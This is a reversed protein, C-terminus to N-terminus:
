GYRRVLNAGATPLYGPYHRLLLRPHAMQIRRRLRREQRVTMSNRSTGHQRWEYLPEPIFAGPMGKDLFSLWLDWDELAPLDRYGRTLEYASRRIMAARGGIFNGSCILKRADFPQVVALGAGDGSLRMQTYCYGLTDDRLLTAMCTEVFTPALVDDADLTVFFRGHTREIAERLTAVLGRNERHVVVIPYRDRLEALVRATDDTSGDDIVTVSGVLATQSFVSEICEALYRGYNHAPILVDVEAADTPV